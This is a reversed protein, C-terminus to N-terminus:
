RGDEKIWHLNVVSDEFVLKILYCGSPLQEADILIQNSLNKKEIILNGTMSFLSISIPVKVESTVILNSNGPNPYLMVKESELNNVHIVTSDTTYWALGGGCHGYILDLVGDSSIDAFAISSRDGEQINMWNNSILTGQDPFTTDFTYLDITGRENGIYMNWLGNNDFVLNPVSYGDIGLYNSAVAGALENTVLSWLPQAGTGTNKYYSVSGDKKGIVLDLLGDLNVDKLIPTSSQGVDIFVSNIDSLILGSGWVPNVNTGSNLYLHILGNLEGLVLDYAGDSNVDGFAPFLSAFNLSSLGWLDATKWEFEVPANGITVNELLHLSSKATLTSTNYTRSAVVIDMDGDNDVDWVVPHAGMGVDIMHEQLFSNGVHFFEPSNSSSSNVYFWASETDSSGYLSNPSVILDKVSDNTVDIYYSAPFLKVDVPYNDPFHMNIEVSSDPGIPTDVLYVAALNSETVDGLLADKIGNGDLDLTTVTGGTHRQNIRPNVVNLFCDYDSGMSLSFTESAESIMGYCRNVCKFSPGNCSGQEVQLNQYYYLNVAAETYSIFDLDGDGDIDDLSPKDASMCYVPANFPGNGLDYSSYVLEGNNYLEFGLNGTDGTTNRYLVIGSQYNSWLDSYGDCDFDGFAIWNVLNDPFLHQFRFDHYYHSEGQIDSTQIFTLLRNGVRDFVVLDLVGDNNLDVDHFQPSNLGGAWPNELYYGGLKVPISGWRKYEQSYSISSVVVLVLVLYSKQAM